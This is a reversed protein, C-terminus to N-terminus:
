GLLISRIQHPPEPCWQHHHIHTYQINTPEDAPVNTVSVFLENRHFNPFITNAPNGTKVHINTHLISIEIGV